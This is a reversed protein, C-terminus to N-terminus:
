LTIPVVIAGILRSNTKTELYLYTALLIWTLFLLSEYLNSLPFYGAVIWRSCLIFFLFLTAISTSIRGLTSLYSKDNFLLLNVWYIIMAVLLIAFVANSLVNQIENWDMFNRWYFKKTYIIIRKVITGSIMLNYQLIVM